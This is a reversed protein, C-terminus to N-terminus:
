QSGTNDPENQTHNTEKGMRDKLIMAYIGRVLLCGAFVGAADILVDFVAGDRGAVFLQHIEDSAAYLLGIGFSVLFRFRFSKEFTALIVSLGAGLVAFETFHAIKRVLYSLKNLMDQLDKEPLDKWKPFFLQQLLTVLRGSQDQSANGTRSSMWFIFGMWLVTLALFVYRVVTKRQKM